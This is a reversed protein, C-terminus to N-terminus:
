AALRAIVLCAVFGVVILLCLTFKCHFYKLLTTPPLPPMDVCRDCRDTAKTWPKECCRVSSPIYDYRDGLRTQQTVEQDSLRGFDIIVGHPPSGAVEGPYHHLLMNGPHLDRHLLDQGHLDMVGECLNDMAQRFHLKLRRNKKIIYM